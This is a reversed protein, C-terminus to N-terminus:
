NSLVTHGQQSRLPDELRGHQGLHRQADGRHGDDRTLISRVVVDEPWVAQQLIPISTTVGVMGVVGAKSQCHGPSRREGVEVADDGALVESRPRHEDHTVVRYAERERHADVVPLQRAEISRRAVGVCISPTSVYGPLDLLAEVLFREAMPHNGGVVLVTRDAAQTPLLKEIRRVNQRVTVRKARRDDWVAQRQALEVVRRKVRVQEADRRVACDFESRIEQGLVITRHQNVAELSEVALRQQNGAGRM